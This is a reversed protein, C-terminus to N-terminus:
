KAERNRISQLVKWEKESAEYLGEAYQELEEETPPPVRRKMLLECVMRAQERTMRVNMFM